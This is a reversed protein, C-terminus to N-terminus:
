LKIYIPHYTLTNNHVENLKILNRKIETISLQRKNIANVGTHKLHKLLATATPFNLKIIEEKIYTNKGLIAKIENISPYKLSVDFTNKIELLNKEGFISIVLVGDKNLYNQLNKITSFINNCWQLSANSIILDFKQKPKYNEVDCKEFIIKSSLNKIHKESNIIDIAYYNKFNFKEIAIQTLIGTYSGIELINEFNKKKILNILEVAMHKQVIANDNYTSTSKEFKKQILNKDLM